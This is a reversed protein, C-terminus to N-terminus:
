RALRHRFERSSVQQVPLRLHLSERLSIGPRELGGGQTGRQARARIAVTRSPPIIKQLLRKSPPRETEIRTWCARECRIMAERSRPNSRPLGISLRSNKFADPANAAPLM